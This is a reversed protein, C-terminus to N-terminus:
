RAPSADDTNGGSIGDASRAGTRSIVEGANPLSPTDYHYARPRDVGDTDAGERDPRPYGTAWVFGQRLRELQEILAQLQQDIHRIKGDGHEDEWTMRALTVRRHRALDDFILQSKGFVSCILGEVGRLTIVMEDAIAQNNLGLSLWHMMESERPTLRWVRQPIHKTKRTPM